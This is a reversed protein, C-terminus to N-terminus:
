HRKMKLYDKDMNALQLALIWFGLRITHLGDPDNDGPEWCDWQMREIPTILDPITRRVYQTIEPSAPHHAM